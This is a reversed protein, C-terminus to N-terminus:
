LGATAGVWAEASTLAAGSLADDAILMGAHASLPNIGGPTGAVAGVIAGILFQSFSYSTGGVITGTAVQVGDVRYVINVGDVTVTHVHWNGDFSAQFATYAAGGSVPTVSPGRNTTTQRIGISPAGSTGGITGFMFGRSTAGAVFKLAEIVTVKGSAVAGNGAQLIRADVSQLYDGAAFTVVRKNNAVGGVLSVDPSAGPLLDGGGYSARMRVLNGAGDDTVQNVDNTDYAATLASGLDSPLWSGSPAPITFNFGEIYPATVNVCEYTNPHVGDTTRAPSGPWVGSNFSSSTVAAFDVVATVRPLGARIDTNLAIQSAWNGDTKPTQGVTTSYDGDTRDTATALYFRRCDGFMGFVTQIAEKIAAVTTGNRLDGGTFDQIVDTLGCAKIFTALTGSTRLAAMNSTDMGGKCIKVYPYRNDLGRAHGGSGGKPGSGSIDGQAFPISHGNIGFARAGSKAVTGTVANAGFFLTSAQGAGPYAPAGAWAYKADGVGIDAANAPLEICAISAGGSHLRSHVRGKTGKLGTVGVVPDSSVVGAGLTYTLNGGNFTVQTFTGLPYELYASFTGTSGTVLAFSGNIYTNVHHIVPNTVDGEPSFWIDRVSVTDDPILAVNTPFQGRNAALINNTQGSPQGGGGIVGAGIYSAVRRKNIKTRASVM